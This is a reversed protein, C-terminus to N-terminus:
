SMGLILQLKSALLQNINPLLQLLQQLVPQFSPRQAALLQQFQALALASM